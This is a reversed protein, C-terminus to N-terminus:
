EFEIGFANAITDWITTLEGPALTLQKGSVHNFTFTSLADGEPYVLTFQYGESDIANIWVSDSDQNGVIYIGNDTRFTIRSESM